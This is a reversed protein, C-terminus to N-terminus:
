YANGIIIAAIAANVSAQYNGVYVPQEYYFHSDMPDNSMAVNQLLRRASAMATPGSYFPAQTTTLAATFNSAVAFKNGAIVTDTSFRERTGQLMALPAMQRSLSGSDIRQVWYTLGAADPARNFLVNYIQTIFAATTAKGTNYFAQSEPSNALANVIGTVGPNAGYASYIADLTTPTGANKMQSSWYALGAPEAPRGLYALYLSQTAAVYAAGPCIASRMNDINLSGWGTVMDWGSSAAYAGNSGSLIDHFMGPNSNAYAYLTPAAFGLNSGCSQLLRAWTATFLPASLSTGGVNLPFPAGNVIIKAGSAPDAVFSVDPGGRYQQGGPATTVAQWFARTVYKSIGGGSGSWATEGAYITPGVTGLTTGGVNVVYKSSAPYSTTAPLTVAQRNADLYTCGSGSDGSSAVFTQGQAVAVAFINYDYTDGGPTDCFGFSMNVVQPKDAADQVAANIAVLVYASTASPATYFKLAKVGGSMAVVTQSDLSWELTESTDTSPTGIVDISTNTAPLGNLQEYKHLDAISPSPDGWTVIGVTMNSATATNGINYIQRYDLPNHGMVTGGPAQAATGMTAAAKVSHTKFRTVTDFGLVREVVDAIETDITTRTKSAHGSTGDPLLYNKLTANFSSQAIQPTADAEVLMNNEAVRVNTFNKAQLYNTLKKIQGKTPGFRERIDASSLTKRYNSSNPDYMDSIYKELGPRDNLKIEFVLHIKENPDIDTEQAKGGLQVKKVSDGAASEENSNGNCGSLIATSLLALAWGNWKLKKILIKEKFNRGAIAPM